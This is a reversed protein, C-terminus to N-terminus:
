RKQKGIPPSVRIKRYRIKLVAEDPDGNNNRVEICHLGKVAVEDIQGAITHDGNVALRDVCTRIVFHTGAERAACSLEYIESERDGVHVCRGPDGLLETSQRVNDLWRISEKKEIPVSTPNIKKLPETGQHREQVSADRYM